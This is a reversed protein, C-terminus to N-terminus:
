ESEPSAMSTSKAKRIGSPPTRRTRTVPVTASPPSSSRRVARTSGRRDSGSPGHDPEPKPANEDVRRDQNPAPGKRRFGLASSLRPRFEDGIEASFERGGGSFPAGKPGAISVERKADVASNRRDWGVQLLDGM